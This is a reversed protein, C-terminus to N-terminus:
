SARQRDAADLGLLANVRLLGEALEAETFAGNEAEWEDIAKRGALLRLRDRAVEALWASFTTDDDQAAQDIAEALDPPLSISRKQRQAM